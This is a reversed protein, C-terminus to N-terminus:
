KRIWVMMDVQIFDNKLQQNFVRNFDSYARGWVEAEPNYIVLNAKDLDKIAWPSYWDMYWALMYPTRNVPNGLKYSVYLSEHARHDTYIKANAPAKEVISYELDSITQRNAIVSGM